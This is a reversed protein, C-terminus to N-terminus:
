ETRRAEREASSQLTILTVEPPAGLRMPAGWTGTGRSVYLRSGHGLDFLGALRPYQLRVLLSFPFIQGKHTHGSLQLDFKGLSAENIWPRHKLLLTVGGGPAGGDGALLKTEDGRPELNARSAAPDDIGVLRLGDNVRLAEGRLVKFGALAHFRLSADLGVYYEHNGFVAVKGLPPHIGALTRALDDMRTATGDVLDGTSVLLDPQTRDVLREIQRLRGARELLGLHVDSIQLIRLRAGPKLHETSLNLRELRLGHAEIAGWAGAVASFAAWALLLVRPEILARTLPPWRFSLARVALNWVDSPLAISFFWLMVAMWTYAALALAHATLLWEARELWRVLFPGFVLLVLGVGLALSGRWGPHFAQTVKSFFYLNVGGYITCFVLLFRFM